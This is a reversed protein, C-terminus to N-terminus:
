HAKGAYAREGFLASGIRVMTSGEEIAVEFDGSMGMSLIELRTREFLKRLGAFYPRAAEATATLPAIGMLGRLRLNPWRSAQSLLDDLREPALGEKAQEPSIKVQVLCDLKKAQEGAHRNLADGLDANDLSQVMDFLAAAKKAKNGQLHGIMHLQVDPPWEGRRPDDFKSQAEQVRNEGLNRVGAQLLPTIRDFPVTKSVAVLAIKDPTRGSRRAATQIREVVQNFRSQAADM